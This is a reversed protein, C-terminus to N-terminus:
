QARERRRQHGCCRPSICRIHGTRDIGARSPLARSFIESGEEAVNEPSKEVFCNAGSVQLVAELTRICLPPRNMGSGISGLEQIGAAVTWACGRALGDPRKDCRGMTPAICRLHGRAGRRGLMTVRRYRSGGPRVDAGNAASCREIAAHEPARAPAMRGERAAARGASGTELIREFSERAGVGTNPALFIMMYLSLATYAERSSLPWLGLVVSRSRTTSITGGYDASPRGGVVGAM